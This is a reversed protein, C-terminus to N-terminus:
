KEILVVKSGGSTWLPGQGGHVNFKYRSGGNSEMQMSIVIRTSPVGWEGDCTGMASGFFYYEHSSFANTGDDGFVKAIQDQHKWLWQWFEVGPILYDKSYTKLVYPAVSLVGQESFDPLKVIKIKSNKVFNSFDADTYKQWAPDNTYVGSVKADVEGRKANWASESMAATQSKFTLDSVKKDTERCNNTYVRTLFEDSLKTTMSSSTNTSTIPAPDETGISDEDTTDSVTDEDVPASTNEDPLSSLSSEDETQLPDETQSFIIAGIVIIIILIILGILWKKM